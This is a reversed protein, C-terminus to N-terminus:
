GRRSVSTAMEPPSCRTSRGCMRRSECWSPNGVGFGLTRGRNVVGIGVHLGFGTRIRASCGHGVARGAGARLASGHPAAGSLDYPGADAWPKRFVGFSWPEAPVFRCLDTAPFRSAGASLGGGTPLHAETLEDAFQPWGSWCVGIGVAAALTRTPAPRGRCAMCGDLMSVGNLRSATHRACHVVPWVTSLAWRGTTGQTALHFRAVPAPDAAPVGPDLGSVVALMRSHLFSFWSRGWDPSLRGAGDVGVDHLAGPYRSNEAELASRVASSRSKGRPRV